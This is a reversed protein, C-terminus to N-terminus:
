IILSWKVMYFILVDLSPNGPDKM